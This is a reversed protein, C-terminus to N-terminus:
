QQVQVVVSINIHVNGPQKGKSPDVTATTTRTVGESTTTIAYTHQGATAASQPLAATCSVTSPVLPNAVCIYPTTLLTGDATAQQQAATVVAVTANAYDWALTPTSQAHAVTAFLLLALVLQLRKM